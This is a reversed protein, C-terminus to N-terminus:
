YVFYISLHNAADVQSHFVLQVVGSPYALNHFQRYAGVAAALADASTKEISSVILCFGLTAELYFHAAVLQAETGVTEIFHASHM